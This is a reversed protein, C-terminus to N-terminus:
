ILSWDRLPIYVDLKILEVMMSRGHVALLGPIGHCTSTLNPFPFMQLRHMQIARKLLPGNGLMAQLSEPTSDKMPRRGLQMESITRIPLFTLNLVTRTGDTLTELQTWIFFMRSGNLM